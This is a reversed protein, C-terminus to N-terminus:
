MGYDKLIQRQERFEADELLIAKGRLRVLYTGGEEKTLSWDEHRRRWKSKPQGYDKTTNEILTLVDARSIDDVLVKELGIMFVVLGLLCGIFVLSWGEFAIGEGYGWPYAIASYQAIFPYMRETLNKLLDRTQLAVVTINEPQLSDDLKISMQAPSTANYMQIMAFRNHGDAYDRGDWTAGTNAMAWIHVERCSVAYQIQNPQNPQFVNAEYLVCTIHTTNDSTATPTNYVVTVKNSAMAGPTTTTTGNSLPLQANMSANLANYILGYLPEESQITEESTNLFDGRGHNPDNSIQAQFSATTFAVLISNDNDPETYGYINTTPREVIYMDRYANGTGVANTLNAVAISQGSQGNYIFSWPTDFLYSPDAWPALTTRMSMLECNPTTADCSPTVNQAFTSLQRTLTATGPTPNFFPLASDYNTNVGAITVLNATSLVKFDAGAVGELSQEITLNPHSSPVYLALLIDSSSLRNQFTQGYALHEWNETGFHLIGQTTFKVGTNIIFSITNGALVLLLLGILILWREKHNKDKSDLVKAKYAAKLEPWLSFFSNPSAAIRLHLDTGQTRQM